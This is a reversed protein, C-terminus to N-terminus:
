STRGSKWACAGLKRRESDVFVTAHYLTRSDRVCVNFKMGSGDELGITNIFCEHGNVDVTTRNVMAEFLEWRSLTEIEKM